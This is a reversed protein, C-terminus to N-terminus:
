MGVISIERGKVERKKLKVEKAADRCSAAPVTLKNQRFEYKITL